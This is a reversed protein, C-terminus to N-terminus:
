TSVYGEDGPAGVTSDIDQMAEDDGNHQGDVRHDRSEHWIRVLCRKITRLGRLYGNDVMDPFHPPCPVDKIEDDATVSSAFDVMKLDVGSVDNVESQSRRIRDTFEPSKDSSSTSPFSQHHEADYMVLLSTAYFRYGSLNCIIHELKVVKKLLAKTRQSILAGSHGQSLFRKLTDKFEEETSIKRGFYKDEFLYEQKRSDWTQMGCIRVGLKQSTTKSCKERQSKKKNDDAKIGHQRTGM